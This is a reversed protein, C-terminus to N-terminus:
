FRFFEPYMSVQNLNVQNFKNEKFDYVYTVNNNLWGSADIWLYPFDDGLSDITIKGSKSPMEIIKHTIVDTFNLTAEVGNKEVVYYIGDKTLEFDTIIENNNPKAIVQYTNFDPHHLDTKAIQYNDKQLATLFYIGNKTPIFKRVKQEKSYLLEWSISTKALDEVKKYYADKFRSSGGIRAYAYMDDKHSITIAPFDEKKLAINKDTGVELIVQLKKPDTGLKYLVSKTELWYDPSNPDAHPIYVYIFGSDDPLWNIGYFNNPDTNKLVIDDIKKTSVDLIVVIGVEKGRQKLGIAVKNGKWNPKIYTIGYYNTIDNKSPDFLFHEKGNQFDRYAVYAYISDQEKKVYFYRGDNTKRTGYIFYPSNESIAVQNNYLSERGNLSNLIKDAYEYQSKMWNSVVSDKTNEINRYPDSITIGHYIDTVEDSTITPYKHEEKLSSCSVFTIAIVAVSALVFNNLLLKFM